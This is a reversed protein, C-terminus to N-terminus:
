ESSTTIDIRESNSVRVMQGQVTEFSREQLDGKYVQYSVTEGNHPNTIKVILLEHNDQWNYIFFGVATVLTLIVLCAAVWRFSSSIASKAQQKDTIAAQNSQTSQKNRQFRLFAYCGLIVLATVLIKTLM